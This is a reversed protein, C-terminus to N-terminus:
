DYSERYWEINEAELDTAIDATEGYVCISEAFFDCEWFARWFIRRRCLLQM